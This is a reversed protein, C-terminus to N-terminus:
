DSGNEVLLEADGEPVPTIESNVFPKRFSVQSELRDALDVPVDAPKHLLTTPMADRTSSLMGYMDSVTKMRARRGRGGRKFAQEVFDQRETETQTMAKMLTESSVQKQRENRMVLSAPVANVAKGGSAAQQLQLSISARHKQLEEFRKCAEVIAVRIQLHARYIDGKSALDNESDNFIEGQGKDSLSRFRRYQPRWDGVAFGNTGLVDSQEETPLSDASQKSELGDSHSLMASLPEISDNTQGKMILLFDDFTIRSHASLSDHGWTQRVTEEYDQAATGLLDMIDEIAIYQVV